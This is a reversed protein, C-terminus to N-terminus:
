LKVNELDHFLSPEVLDIASAKGLPIRRSLPEVLDIAPAKGPPIFVGSFRRYLGKRTTDEWKSVGGF